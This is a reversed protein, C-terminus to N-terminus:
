YLRRTIPTDGFPKPPDGIEIWAYPTDWPSVDLRGLYDVGIDLPHEPVGVVERPYQFAPYFKEVEEYTPDDEGQLVIKGVPDLGSEKLAQKEEDTMYLAKEPTKEIRIEDVFCTYNSVNSDRECDIPKESFPLPDDEGCYNGFAILKPPGALEAPRPITRLHLWNDSGDDNYFFRICDKGLQLRMYYQIHMFAGRLHTKKTKGGITQSLFFRPFPTPSVRGMGCGNGADWVLYCATGWLKASITVLDQELPRQIHASSHAISEVILWNGDVSLKSGDSVVQTWGPDIQTGNFPEHFPLSMPQAEVFRTRLLCASALALVVIVNKMVSGEM